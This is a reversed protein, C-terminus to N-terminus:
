QSPDGDGECLGNKKQQSRMLQRLSGKIDWLVTHLKNFHKTVADGHGKNEGGYQGEMFSFPPHLSSEQFVRQLAVRLTDDGMTVRGMEMEIKELLLDVEHNLDEVVMQADDKNTERLRSFFQSSTVEKQLSTTLWLLGIDVLRRTAYDMGEKEVPTNEQSDETPSEVVCDMGEEEVPTNEQSDETPSEVVCDMWEEEM